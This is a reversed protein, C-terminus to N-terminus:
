YIFTALMPLSVQDNEKIVFFQSMKLLHKMEDPDNRVTHNFSICSWLGTLICNKALPIDGSLVFLKNAAAYARNRFQIEGAEM